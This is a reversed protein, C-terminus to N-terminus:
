NSNTRWLFTVIQARTCGQDPSFTTSSTGNTIEKAVAWLVANYYYADQTVDAFPNATQDAQPQKAVRWLFAATQGRTVTADPSFTIASTGNTIGQEVAWLVADYYYADKSVDTFPNEAGAAKPSGQSRWLFTVTQARTCPSNPQFLTGNVLGQNRAWLAPQYYYASLPVDQFPNTNGAAPEGKARWLFTLIQAKTCTSNPSFSTASTGNTIGRDVAWKVTDYAWHSTPVDFFDGNNTAAKQAYAALAARMLAGDTWHGLLYSEGTTVEILQSKSATFRANDAALWSDQAAYTDFFQYLGDVSVLQYANYGDIKTWGANVLASVPATQNYRTGSANVLPLLTGSATTGNWADATYIMTHRIIELQGRNVAYYLYGGADGVAIGVGDGVRLAAENGDYTGFDYGFTWGLETDDEFDYPMASIGNWTWVKLTDTLNGTFQFDVTLLLPMGDGAPDALTAMIGNNALSDLAQVYANAMDYPMKCNTYSGGYYTIDALEETPAAPAAAAPIALLGALLALSLALPVLRKRLLTKM